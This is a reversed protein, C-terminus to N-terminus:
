KMKWKESLIWFHWPCLQSSPFRLMVEFNSIAFIQNAFINAFIPLFPHLSPHSPFLPNKSQKSNTGATAPSPAAGAFAAANTQASSLAMQQTPPSPDLSAIDSCGRLLALASFAVDLRRQHEDAFGRSWLMPWRRPTAGAILGRHDSPARSCLACSGRATQRERPSYCWELAVRRTRKRGAPGSSLRRAGESRESKEVTLENM